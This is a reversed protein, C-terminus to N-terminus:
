HHSIRRALQQVLVAMFILARLWVGMGTVAM